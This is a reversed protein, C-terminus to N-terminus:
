YRRFELWYIQTLPDLYTIAESHEFTTREVEIRRKEMDPSVVFYETGDKIMGGDDGLKWGKRQGVSPLQPTILGEQHGGYAKSIEDSWYSPLPNELLGEFRAQPASVFVARKRKEEDMNEFLEAAKRTLKPLLEGKQGYSVDWISPEKLFVGDLYSLIGVDVMRPFHYIFFIIQNRQRVLSLMSVVLQNLKSMSRRAPTFMAGEDLLAISSDPIDAQSLPCIYNPPLLKRKEPPLGVIVPSLQYVKSFREVLYHGLGTKGSGRRGLILLASAPKVINAWPDQHDRMGMKKLFESIEDM